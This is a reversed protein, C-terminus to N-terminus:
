FHYVALSPKKLFGVQIPLARVCSLFSDSTATRDFLHCLVYWFTWKEDKRCSTPSATPSKYIYKKKKGVSCVLRYACGRSDSILRSMVFGVFHSRWRLSLDAQADAWDSWDESHTWHVALSGLQKMRVAFVSWVPRVGLGIETKAPRVRWKTPKTMDHSKHYGYLTSNLGRQSEFAHCFM